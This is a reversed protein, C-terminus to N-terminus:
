VFYSGDILRVDLWSTLDFMDAKFPTWTKFSFPSLPRTQYEHRRPCNKSRWWDRWAKEIVYACVSEREGERDRESEWKTWGRMPFRCRGWGGHCFNLVCSPCPLFHPRLPIELLPPGPNPDRYKASSWHHTSPAKVESQNSYNCLIFLM